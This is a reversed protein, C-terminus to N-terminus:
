PHVIWPAGGDVSYIEVTIDPNAAIFRLAWSSPDLQDRPAEARIEIVKRAALEGRDTQPKDAFKIQNRAAFAAERVREAVPQHPGATPPTREIYKAKRVEDWATESRPVGIDVDSRQPIRPKPGIKASEKLPELILPKGTMAEARELVVVLTSRMHPNYLQRM